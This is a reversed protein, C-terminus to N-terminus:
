RIKQVNTSRLTDFITAYLSSIEWSMIQMGQSLLACTVDTQRDTQRDTQQLKPHRKRWKVINKYMSISRGIVWLVGMNEFYNFFTGMFCWYNWNGFTIKINIKKTIKWNFIRGNLFGMLLRYKQYDIEMCSIHLM